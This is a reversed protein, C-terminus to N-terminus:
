FDFITKVSALQPALVFSVLTLAVGFWTGVQVVREPSAEPNVYITYVELCFLTSASNLASNFTSLVSGILVAAFLGLMWTPMVAQVLEPYVADGTDFSLMEKKHM